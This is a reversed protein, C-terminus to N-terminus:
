FPRIAIEVTELKALYEQPIERAALIGVEKEDTALVQTVSKLLVSAPYTGEDKEAKTQRPHHVIAYEFLRSKAM